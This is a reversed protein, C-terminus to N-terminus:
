LKSLERAMAPLLTTDNARERGQTFVVLLMPRGGQLSWWAADHRAQSMWGAKSWLRSGVPLGEGLFGDVQNEPDAKRQLLDISRSLLQRLRKCALPSVLADTMVSELMRATAATTLANRNGLGEGYFDRERGYPGDGWTKQCCNVKELEEWGLGQLWDNVLHRQQQWTQWSEGLLSPGSTTGTLLDLVLSTADNSSDAIMDRMARRLEDVEPLLDQQLWAEAALAYVLKVVSAPFLIRQDSWGAGSGSGPTPDSCDYRVWSIAVSNHLGPRREAALRDLLGTLQAQMASDPRYFAM